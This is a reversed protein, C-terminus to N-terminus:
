CGVVVPIAEPGLIEYMLIYTREIYCIVIQNNPNESVYYNGAFGYLNCVQQRGLFVGSTQKNMRDFM